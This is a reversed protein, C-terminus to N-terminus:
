VLEQLIESIRCEWLARDNNTKTHCGSCLPVLKWSKGHCGQGKDYDVHHVALRKQNEAESKGCIICRRGFSDRIREKLENNFKPCYPEFSKGGKWAPSNEGKRRNSFEWSLINHYRKGNANGWFKSAVIKHLLLNPGLHKIPPLLELDPFEDMETFIIEHGLEEDRMDAYLDALTGTLLRPGGGGRADHKARM